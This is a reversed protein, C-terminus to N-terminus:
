NFYKSKELKEITTKFKGSTIRCNKAMHTDSNYIIFFDYLPISVSNGKLILPIEVDLQKKKNEFYFWLSHRANELSLYAKWISQLLDKDDILRMTGSTKFMEFASTQFVTSKITSLGPGYNRISDPPISNKNQSSLYNGYNNWYELYSAEEDLSKINEEMELKMANLYLAVDRKETRNAILYSLSLTIAVGIVVISVERLYKGIKEILFKSKM